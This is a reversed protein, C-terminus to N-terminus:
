FKRLPGEYAKPERMNEDVESIFDVSMSPSNPIGDRLDQNASFGRFMPQEPMNAFSGNGMPKKPAHQKYDYNANQGHKGVLKKNKAM